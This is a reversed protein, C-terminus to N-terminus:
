GKPRPGIFQVRVARMEQVVARVAKSPRAAVIKDGLMDVVYALAGTMGDLKVQVDDVVVPPDASPVVTSIESKRANADPRVPTSSFRHVPRMPLLAPAISYDAMWYVWDAPWWGGLYGNLYWDGSYGGSPPLNHAAAWEDAAARAATM